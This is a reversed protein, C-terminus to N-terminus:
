EKTTRLNVLQQYNSDEFMSLHSNTDLLSIHRFGEHLEYSGKEKLRHYAYPKVKVIMNKIDGDADNEPLVSILDGPLEELFLELSGAIQMKKSDVYEGTLKSNQLLTADQGELFIYIDNGNATYGIM